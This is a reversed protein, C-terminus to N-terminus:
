TRQAKATSFWYLVCALGLMFVTGIILTLEFELINTIGSSPIFVFAIGFLTAGLGVLALGRQVGIKYQGAFLYVFPVLQIVISCKLLKEYIDRVTSGYLSILLLITCVVGQVLLANIPTGWKPHTKGLAKPLYVDVGMVFPIRASGALWASCVGLVALALIIAAFPILSTLSLRTAVNTVAQMVGTVAGIEGAPVAVILAIVGIIYLCISILGAILVARRIIKQTDKIEDGMVSGLELGVLSYMAVSLASLSGYERFSPLAENWRFPTESSGSKMYALIGIVSLFALSVWVGFGGINNLWKGVSLGRIHMLTVLWLVAISSVIMFNVNDALKAAEPGGVYTIVGVIIFVVSPIYFLNNTWYCWGSLFAHFDGFCERTWLYIGGEGPYRKGFEAVAVGQPVLFLFFALIYYSVGRWGEGAILPLANVNVVAVVMLLVLDRLNLERRLNL